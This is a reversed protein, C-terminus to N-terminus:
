GPVYNCDGDVIFSFSHMLSLFFCSMTICSGGIGFFCFEDELFLSSIIQFLM